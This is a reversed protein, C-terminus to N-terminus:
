LTHSRSLGLLALLLLLITMEYGQRHVQFLRVIFTIQTMTKNANQMLSWCTMVSLPHVQKLVLRPLPKYIGRVGVERTLKPLGDLMIQLNMWALLVWWLVM